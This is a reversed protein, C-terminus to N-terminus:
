PKPNGQLHNHCRTAQIPHWCQPSVYQRDTDAPDDSVNVNLQWFVLYQLVSCRSISISIM